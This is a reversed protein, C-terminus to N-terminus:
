LFDLDLQPADAPNTSCPWFKVYFFFFFTALNQISDPVQPKFFELAPKMVFSVQM